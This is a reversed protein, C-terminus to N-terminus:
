INQAAIRDLIPFISMKEITSPNLAGHFELNAALVHECIEAFSSPFGVLFNGRTVGM